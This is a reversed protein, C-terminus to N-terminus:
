RDPVVSDGDSDQAESKLRLARPQALLRRDRLIVWVQTRAIPRGPSITMMKAPAARKLTVMGNRHDKGDEALMVFARM